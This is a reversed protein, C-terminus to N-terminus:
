KDIQGLRFFKLQPFVTMLNDTPFETPNYRNIHCTWGVDILLALEPYPTKPQILFGATFVMSFLGTLLTGGYNQKLEQV